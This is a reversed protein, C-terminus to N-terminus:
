GTTVNNTILSEATTASAQGCYWCNRGARKAQYMAHDAQRLLRDLTLDPDSEAALTIGISAGIRADGWPTAIPEILSALLKSAVVGADQCEHLGRLVLVFEDGGIRAVLDGEARVLTRLREAVKKLVLDGAEHGLQDNVPKFHDLDVLLLASPTGRDLLRNVGQFLGARNLLGTLLDTESRQQAEQKERRLLDIRQALALSFLMFEASIGMQFAHEAWLSDPVLGLARALTVLAGLLPISQALLFLRAPRYGRWLIRISVLLILLTMSIGLWFALQNALQYADLAVLALMVLAGVLIARLALDFRPAHRPTDLFRRTWLTLAIFHVAPVLAHQNNALWLNEPWLYQYAHGNLELIVLLATVSAALYYGYLADRLAGWLFANYILMGLILGYSIGLWLQENALRVKLADTSWLRIPVALSDLTQVRLYLTQTEAGIPQDTLQDTLQGPIHGPIQDTLSDTIQGAIQFPFLFLRHALPREAFLRHEGTRIESYDGAATPAFFRVDDLSPLAVELWWHSVASDSPPQAVRVELRLWIADDTFGFSAQQPLPNFARERVEAFSLQGTPDRLVSLYGDAYQGNPRDELLLANAVAQQPWILVLTMMTGVMIAILLVRVPLLSQLVGCTVEPAQIRPAVPVLLWVGPRSFFDMM